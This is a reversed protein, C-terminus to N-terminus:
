QKKTLLYYVIDTDQKMQIQTTGDLYDLDKYQENSKWGGGIGHDPRIEVYTDEGEPQFRLWRYHDPQITSFNPNIGLVSVFLDHVYDDAMQINPFNFTIWSYGNWQLNDCRRKPGNFQLDVTKIDFNYTDKM